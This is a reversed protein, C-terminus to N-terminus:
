IYFYMIIGAPMYLFWLASVASSNIRRAMKLYPGQFPYLFFYLYLACAFVIACILLLPDAANEPSGYRSLSKAGGTGSLVSFGFLILAAPLFASVSFKGIAERSGAGERDLSSILTFVSLIMIVFAAFIFIINDAMILSLVSILSFTLLIIIRAFSGDQFRNISIFFLVNLGFFLIICSLIIELPGSNTLFATRPGYKMFSYIIIYFVAMYSLANIIIISIKIGNNKSFGAFITIFLALVLIMTAAYPDLREIIDAISRM